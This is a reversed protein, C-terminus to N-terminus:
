NVELPTKRKLFQVSYVLSKKCASLVPRYWRPLCSIYQVSPFHTLSTSVSEGKKNIELLVSTSKVVFYFAMQNWATLFLNLSIGMSLTHLLVARLKYIVKNWPMIETGFAHWVAEGAESSLYGSGIFKGKIGTSICNTQIQESFWSRSQSVTGFGPSILRFRGMRRLLCICIWGVDLSWVM